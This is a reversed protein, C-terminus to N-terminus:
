LEVCKLSGSLYNNSAFKQAYKKKNNSPSM